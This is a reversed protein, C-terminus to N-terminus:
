EEKERFLWYVFSLLNGGLIVVVLKIIGTTDLTCKIDSFFLMFLIFCFGLSTIFVDFTKLM